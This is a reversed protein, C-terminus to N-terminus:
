AAEVGTVHVDDSDVHQWIPQRVIVGPLEILSEAVQRAEQENAAEVEIFGVKRVSQELNVRYNM